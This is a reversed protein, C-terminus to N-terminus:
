SSFQVGAGQQVSGDANGPTFMPNLNRIMCKFVDNVHYILGAFVEKDELEMPVYEEGSLCGGVFIFAASECQLQPSDTAEFCILSGSDGEEAFETKKPNGQLFHIRSQFKEGEKIFISGKYIGKTLKTKAGWKYVKMNKMESDNALSIIGKVFSDRSDRLGFRCSEVKEEYVKVLSLDISETISTSSLDTALVSKAVAPELKDTYAYKSKPIVHACTTFYISGKRDRIFFGLTGYEQSHNMTANVKSGQKLHYKSVKPNGPWPKVRFDCINKPFFEEIYRLVSEEKRQLLVELKHCAYHDATNNPSFLELKKIKLAYDFLNANADKGNLPKEIHMFSLARNHEKVAKNVRKEAFLAIRKNIDSEEDFFVNYYLAPSTTQLREKITYSVIRRADNQNNQSSKPIIYLIDACDGTIEKSLDIQTLDQKTLQGKQDTKLVCVVFVPEGKAQCDSQRCLIKEKGKSPSTFIGTKTKVIHKDEFLFVPESEGDTITPVFVTTGMILEPVKITSPIKNCSNSKMWREINEIRPFTSTKLKIEKFEIFIAIHKQFLFDGSMCGLVFKLSKFISGKFFCNGKMQEATFLIRKRMVSDLDNYAYRVIETNDLNYSSNTESVMGENNTYYLQVQLINNPASIKSTIMGKQYLGHYTFLIIDGPNAHKITDTKRQSM